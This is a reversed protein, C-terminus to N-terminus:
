IVNKKKKKQEANKIGKFHLTPINYYLIISRNLKMVDYGHLYNNNNYIHYRKTSTFFEIRYM